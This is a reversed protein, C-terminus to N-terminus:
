SSSCLVHFSKGACHSVCCSIIHLHEHWVHMLWAHNVPESSGKFSGKNLSSVLIHDHVAPIQLQLSSHAAYLATCLVSYSCPTYVKQLTPTFTTSMVCVECVVVATHQLHLMLRARSGRSCWHTTRSGENNVM